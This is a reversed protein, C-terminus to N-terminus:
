FCWNGPCVELCGEDDLAWRLLANQQRRQLLQAILQKQEEAEYIVTAISFFVVSFGHFDM